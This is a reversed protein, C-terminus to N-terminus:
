DDLAARRPIVETAGKALVGALTPGDVFEGMGGSAVHRVLRYRDSLVLGPRLRDM